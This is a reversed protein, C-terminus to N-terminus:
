VGLDILNEGTKAIWLGDRGDSDAEGFKGVRSRDNRNKIFGTDDIVTKEVGSSNRVAIRGSSQEISIRGSLTSFTGQGPYTIKENYAM